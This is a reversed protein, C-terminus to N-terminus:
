QLISELIAALVTACMLAAIIFVPWTVSNMRRYRRPIPLTPPCGIGIEFFDATLHYTASLSVAVSGINLVEIVLQM